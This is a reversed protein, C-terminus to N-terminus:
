RVINDMVMRLMFAFNHQIWFTPEKSFSIKSRFIAGFKDILPRIYVLNGWLIGREGFKKIFPRNCGLDLVICLKPGLAGFNCIIIVRPNQSTRSGINIQIM